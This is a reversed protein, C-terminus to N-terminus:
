SRFFYRFFYGIWGFKQLTFFAQKVGAHLVQKLDKCRLIDAEITNEYDSV